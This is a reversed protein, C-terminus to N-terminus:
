QIRELNMDKLIEVTAKFGREADYLGKWGLLLLTTSDLSSNIMPNFVVSESEEPFDKIISVGATQTIIEAMEKISIISQPNSINYARCPEGQLLVTLIASACDLCYCYSRIQSGDSKMIINKGFAADYVWSSSVRKDTKRATPGYIHGPRVIVTDVGYEYNYSVCITEAARKSMPYSSRAKLLDIYGYENEGFPQETTKVGYVESSSIYLMRKLSCDRAYDLLCKTGIINSMMTEVPEQSFLNPSANSAGHIIYDCSLNIQNNISTADYHVFHFYDRQSYDSFRLDIHEKNRGAAVIGIKQVHTENYHILVDIIASCVLGTAGTLLVTKGELQSIIPFHKILEELEAKWLRSDYIRM